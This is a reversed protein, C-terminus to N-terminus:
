KLSQKFKNYLEVELSRAEIEWPHNWYSIKEDDYLEGLYRVMNTRLLDKLEGKAYQKVHVMEHALVILTMKKSLNPHITITFNRPKSKDCNWDCFGYLGRIDKNDFKLKLNIHPLLRGGLLDKGYFLVAKKCLAVSVKSPKGSTRLYM